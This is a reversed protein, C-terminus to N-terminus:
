PKRQGALAARLIARRRKRREDLNRRGLARLREVSRASLPRPQGREDVLLRIMEGLDRGLAERERSRRVGGRSEPPRGRQPKWGAVRRGRPILGCLRGLQCVNRGSRGGHWLRAM